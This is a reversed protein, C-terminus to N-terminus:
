QAGFQCLDDLGQNDAALDVLAPLLMAVGLTAVLLGTVLM